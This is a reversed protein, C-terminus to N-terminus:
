AYPLRLSCLLLFDLCVVCMERGVCQLSFCSSLLACADLLDGFNCSFFWCSLYDSYYLFSIQMCFKGMMLNTWTARLHLHNLLASIVQQVTSM